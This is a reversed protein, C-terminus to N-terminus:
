DASLAIWSFLTGGGPEDALAKMQAATMKLAKPAKKV